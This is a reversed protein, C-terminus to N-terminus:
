KQKHTQIKSNENYTGKKQIIDQKVIILDDKTLKNLITIIEQEEKEDCIPIQKISLTM